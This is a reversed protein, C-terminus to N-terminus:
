TEVRARLTLVLGIFSLEHHAKLSELAPTLAQLADQALCGLPRPKKGHKPIFADNKVRNARILETKLYVAGM